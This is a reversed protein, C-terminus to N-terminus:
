ASDGMWDVVRLNPIRSFHTVNNSVVILRRVLATAGILVDEVDIPRGLAWLHAQVEGAVLAEEVGLGLVEVRPLIEREIRRWLAGHDPRRMAGHRLEMVSICSAYLAEAPQAALRRLLGPDPRKRIVESLVNTDLLYM